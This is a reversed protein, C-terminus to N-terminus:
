PAVELLGAALLLVLWGAVVLAGTVLLRCAERLRDPM